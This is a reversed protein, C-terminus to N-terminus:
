WLKWKANGKNWLEELIVKDRMADMCRWFGKHRYAALQGAATLKELPEDEWMQQDAHEDLYNFVGPELVFFGGNIWHGDGRPKEKFNLVRGGEEAEVAGFKGEPQVITMTATLGQDHHTKLLAGLDIDAVGDGYTLFFREGKVYEAVRRLRGATRTEEGTDVLTVTFDDLASQHVTLKNDRTNITIDSNHLFYNLFYEKIMYGKYGLCIVFERHGQSHFIKMIHWLIPHAGIGIMPKPKSISEESIRSGIGGAFIVTKM